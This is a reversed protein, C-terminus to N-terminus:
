LWLIHAKLRRKLLNLRDCNKIEAPLINYM